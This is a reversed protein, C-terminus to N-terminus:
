EFEVYGAGAPSKGLHKGGHGNDVVCRVPTRHLECDGVCSGDPLTVCGADPATERVIKGDPGFTPWGKSPAPFKYRHGAEASM